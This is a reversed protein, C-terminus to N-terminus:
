RIADAAMVIAHFSVPDLAAGGVLGGDIDAQAFLSAASEPKVSGGYLIPLTQAAEANVQAVRQRIAAHVTQAVNPTASKGTGIAWVPEYAIAGLDKPSLVALVATLQRLIVRETAGSEREALTEGVCVIPRLGAKVAALAKMAVRNDTEGFLQRRESHGVICWRCGVDALMGASIEGTYAGSPNENVDEAGIEIGIPMMLRGIETLYVFPACVVTRAQQPKPLEAFGAAWERCHKLSGNMKWNAVVIKERVRIM